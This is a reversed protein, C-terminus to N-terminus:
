ISFFTVDFPTSMKSRSLIISPIDNELFGEDKLFQVPEFFRQCKVIVHVYFKLM